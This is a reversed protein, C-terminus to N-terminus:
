HGTVLTKLFKLAEIAGWVFTAAGTGWVAARNRTNKRSAFIQSTAAESARKVEAAQYKLVAIDATQQLIVPRVEKEFNDMRDHVGKFGEDMHGSLLNVVTDLSDNM